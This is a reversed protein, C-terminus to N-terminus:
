QSLIDELDEVCKEITKDKSMSTPRTLKNTIMDAVAAILASQYKGDFPLFFDTNQNYEQGWTYASMNYKDSYAAGWGNVSPDSMDKRIPPVNSGGLALADQGDKTLLFSLFLWALDRNETEASIAYGPIGTGIKPNEGILPFTVVDYDDRLGDISDFKSIGVSHFLMAGQGGEFNAQKTFNLPAMYRKDVLVDMMDLMARTEESDIAISKDENFVKGGNSLLMPYFIAEWNLYADIIFEEQKGNADFHQRLKECAALFDDWSWGNRVSSMDVGAEVFMRKNYHTVVKDASRPIVYQPGDYNKQGLKWMSDVFQAEYEANKATELKIYPDLNLFIRNQIFPFADASNTWVIDPLTGSNYYSMIASAYNGAIIECTVTIKPYMEQFLKVLGDDMMAKERPDSTIAITLTGDHEYDEILVASYTDDPEEIDMDEPLCSTLSFLMSSLLLMCVTKKM